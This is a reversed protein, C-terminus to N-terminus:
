DSEEDIANGIEPEEEVFYPDIEKEDVEKMRELIPDEHELLTDGIEDDQENGIVKSSENETSGVSEFAEIGNEKTEDLLRNEVEVDDMLDVDDSPIGDDATSVDLGDEDVDIDEYGSEINTLDEIDADLSEEIDGGNYLDDSTIDYEDTLSIDDANQEMEQEQDLESELDDLDSLEVEEESSSDLEENASDTSEDFDSANDMLEIDDNVADHLSTERTSDDADNDEDDDSTFKKKRNGFYDQVSTDGTFFGKAVQFGSQGEMNFNYLMSELWEPAKKIVYKGFFLIAIDLVLMLIIGGASITAGVLSSLLYLFVAFLTKAIVCLIAWQLRSIFWQFSSKNRKILAFIAGFVSVGLLIEKALTLIVILLSGAGFVLAMLIRHVLFIFSLGFISLCSAFNYSISTSKYEKREKKANEVSPNNLLSNVRDENKVGAIKEIDEVETTGFHRLRFAKMQLNEFLLEKTQIELPIDKNEQLSFTQTISSEMMKEVNVMLPKGYMGIFVVVVCSLLTKVFADLVNSIRFTQQKREMIRYMLAVMGFLFLLKYIYANPDDWVFLVKDLSTFISRVVTEVFSSSAVNYIVMVILTVLMGIKELISTFINIVWMAITEPDLMNIGYAIATTSSNEFNKIYDKDVEKAAIDNNLSLMAKTLFSATKITAERDKECQAKEEGMYSACGSSGNPNENEDPKEENEVKEQQEIVEDSVKAHAVSTSANLSFCLLLVFLFVSCLKKM